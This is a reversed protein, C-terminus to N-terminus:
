EDNSANLEDPRKGEEQAKEKLLKTAASHAGPDLEPRITVIPTQEVRETPPIPELKRKPERM